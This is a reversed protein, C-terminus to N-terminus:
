RNKIPASFYQKLKLFKSEFFEYSITSLIITVFLIILPYIFFLIVPTEDNPAIPSLKLVATIIVGHWCYLGYSIKGLYNIPQWLGANFLPKQNFCQDFLILFFFLTLTIQRVVNLWIWQENNQFLILVLLFLMYIIGWFIKSRVRLFAYLKNQLFCSYALLIGAGFNILYNLPNFYISHIYGLANLTVFAGYICFMAAILLLINKHLLHMCAGWTLYFQEEVAITWLFAVFFLINDSIYGLYYNFTFTIFWYFEPLPTAEIGTAKAIFVVLYGLAIILFYLPWIRLTRRVYFHKLNFHGQLKIESLIIWTILFASLTFFFSIGVFSYSALLKHLYALWVNTIANNSIFVHSVFVFLFAYFRLADINKFYTNSHQM